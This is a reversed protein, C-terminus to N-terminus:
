TVISRFLSLAPQVIKTDVEAASNVDFLNVKLLCGKFRVNADEYNIDDPTELLKYDNYEISSMVQEVKIAQEQRKSVFSHLVGILLLPENLGANDLIIRMYIVKAGIIPTATTGTVPKTAVKPTFFVALKKLPWLSVSSIELGTSSRTSIGYGSPRGIMFEEETNKLLEEVEKILYSIEFYLKQILEFALQTQRIVEQKEM